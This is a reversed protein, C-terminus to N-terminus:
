PCAGTEMYKVGSDVSTGNNNKPVQVKATATGVNGQSDTVKFTITYLRGDLNSDREARLQVSKCDAAIVIDDITNGDAGAPNDELEDSTVSAIVVDEIGVGADCSDSAGTVFQSITFTSYTHNPPWLTLTQGNTTIVPPGSNVALNANQAATNECVGGGSTEVTYTGADTPQTNSITLTSSTATSTIDVRGGFDGDVLVMAGKKWVFTFPGTGSTTTTFTATQGECVSQDAPDTTAAPADVTLTATHSVQGCEGTVTLTVPHPGASFGTTNVALTPSNSGAPNGDVTWAYHLDTGSATTSFNAMAGQCVRQDAPDTATTDANVTLTASHEVTGCVGTVTLTVPHAGASFGSTNVSLNPSDGGAAVGDVTWAYHLDTGTATTSFNATDGECVEQDVPDTATTVEGVTLSASQSATNCSGTAEVTYTGADSAQVNSISLSNTTAGSVRGGLDGDNLVTSGKKWVFTIPGPGSATTTFTATAGECLSQDAPDTTANTDSTITVNVTENDATVDISATGSATATFTASAQGNVFDTAGTVTGIAPTNNIFTAPFTPLGNLQTTLPAGSNRGLIDATLTSTGGVCVTGPSASHRLQLWTAPTITVTGGPDAARFDNAAPGANRGWWNDDATMTGGGRFLTVGNEPVGASNGVLRSYAVSASSNSLIAGGAKGASNNAFSSTTVTLPGSEVIVAGGNGNAASNGNFSSTNVSYTGTSLNFNFLDLAGGGASASSATNNSFTSGTISLTGSSPRRGSPDGASYGIAGGSSSTSNATFTSGTVTLSGGFNSIAGGGSTGSGTASNGSFTCNTVTTTNNQSGSIIAGGGIGTTESGGTLPVNSISFSFGAALFPNVEIVRDNPQTQRIITTAAGAGIISTGSATVDLDGITNDGNFGETAGGPVVLQYTGAPVNIVTGPNSNAYAIAGRLSCDGPAASCVGVLPVDATTDVDITALVPTMYANSASRKVERNQAAVTRVTIKQQPAGSSRDAVKTQAPPAVLIAASGIAALAVLCLVLTVRNYSSHTSVSRNTRARRHLM